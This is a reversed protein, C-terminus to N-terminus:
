EETRKKRFLLTITINREEDNIMGFDRLLYETDTFRFSINNIPRDVVPHFALQEPEYMRYASQLAEGLRVHVCQLLKTQKGGMVNPEILDCHLMAMATPVPLKNAATNRFAYYDLGGRIGSRLVFFLERREYQGCAVAFMPSMLFKVSWPRGIDELYLRIVGIRDKFFYIAPRRGGFPTYDLEQRVAAVFGDTDTIIGPNLTIKADGYEEADSSVWMSVEGEGDLLRPPYAVSLAAVEYGGFNSESPLPVTYEQMTNEPYLEPQHSSCTVTFEEQEMNDSLELNLITPDGEPVELPEGQGDVLEVHLSRITELRVTLRPPRRFSLFAYNPREEGPLNAPPYHFSALIPQLQRGVRQAELETVRVYVTLGDVGFRDKGQTSIGLSRLSLQFNKGDQSTLANPLKNCFVTRTNTEETDRSGDSTLCIQLRM